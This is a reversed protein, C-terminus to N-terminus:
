TACVLFEASLNYVCHSTYATGAATTGLDDHLGQQESGLQMGFATDSPVPAFGQSVAVLPHAAYDPLVPAGGMHWSRDAVYEQSSRVAAPLMDKPAHLQADTSSAPEQQSAAAHMGAAAEEDPLSEAQSAGSCTTQLGLANQQESRPSLMGAQKQEQQHMAHQQQMTHQLHHMTQQQEQQQMTHQMDLPTPVINAQLQSIDQAPEEHSSSRSSSSTTSWPQQARMLHSLGSAASHAYSAPSGSGSQRAPEDATKDAAQEGNFPHLAHQALSSGGSNQCAAPQLAIDCGQQAPTIVNHRNHDCPLRPAAPMAQQPLAALRSPAAVHLDSAAQEDSRLLDTKASMGQQNSFVDTSVAGVMMPYSRHTAHPQVEAGDRDAKDAAAAAVYSLPVKGPQLKAVSLVANEGFTVHPQLRGPVGEVEEDISHRMWPYQAAIQLGEAADALVDYHQSQSAQRQGVGSETGQQNSHPRTAPVSGSIQWANRDDAPTAAAAATAASEAASNVIDSISPVDAHQAPETIQAADADHDVVADATDSAGADHLTEEVHTDENDAELQVAEAQHSASDESAPADLATHQQQEVGDEDGACSSASGNSPFIDAKSASDVLQRTLQRERALSASLTHMNDEHPSPTSHGSSAPAHLSALSAQQSALLQRRATTVLKQQRGLIAAPSGVLM